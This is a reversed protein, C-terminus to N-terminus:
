NAQKKKKRPNDPTTTTDPDSIILVMWAKARPEETEDDLKKKKDAAKDKAAEKDAEKEKEKEKAAEKEKEKDKAAEKDEESVVKKKAAKKVGLYFKVKQGVQVDDWKASYGPKKPDTGKLEKKEKETFEKVNGKDDYELPLNVRRVVVEEPVEINVDKYAMAPRYPSPGSPPPPLMQMQMSVQQLKNMRQTPNKMNMAQQYQMMLKNVRSNYQSTAKNNPKYQPNPEMYTYGVKLTLMKTSAEVSTLEGDLEKVKELSKYDEKTAPEEKTKGYKKQGAAFPPLLLVLALPLAIGCMIKRM